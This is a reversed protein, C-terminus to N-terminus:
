GERREGREQEPAMFITNRNSTVSAYNDGTANDADNYFSFGKLGIVDNARNFVKGREMDSNAYLRFDLLGHPNHTLRFNSNIRGVKRASNVIYPSEVDLHTVITDLMHVPRQLLQFLGFRATRDMLQIQLMFDLDEKTQVGMLKIAAVRAQLKAVQTVYQLRLKFFEPYLNRFKDISAPDNQYQSLVQLFAKDYQYKKIGEEVALARKIDKDGISYNVRAGSNTIIHQTLADIKSDEPSVNVYSAPFMSQRFTELGYVDVSNQFQNQSSMLRGADSVASPATLSTTSSGVINAM